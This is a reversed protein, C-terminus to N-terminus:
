TKNIIGNYSVFGVNGYGEFKMPNEPYKPINNEQPLDYGQNLTGQIM